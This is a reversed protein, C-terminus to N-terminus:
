FLSSSKRISILILALKSKKRFPPDVRLNDIRGKHNLYLHHCHIGRKPRHYCDETTSAEGTVISMLPHAVIQNDRIPIHIRTVSSDEVLRAKLAELQRFIQQNEEVVKQNQQQLHRNREAQQNLQSQIHKKDTKLKTNEEQTAIFDQLQNDITIRKRNYEEVQKNLDKNIAQTTYLQNKLHENQKRLMDQHKIIQPHPTFTNCQRRIGTETNQNNSNNQANDNSNSQTNDNNQETTTQAITNNIVTSSHERTPSPPLSSSESSDIFVSMRRRRPCPPNDVTEFDSGETISSLAEEEEVEEAVEEPNSSPRCDAAETLLAAVAATAEATADTVPATAAGSPETAAKAAQASLFKRLSIIHKAFVNRLTEKDEEGPSCDKHEGHWVTATVDKPKEQAHPVCYYIMRHARRVGKSCNHKKFNTARYIEGCRCLKFIRRANTGKTM